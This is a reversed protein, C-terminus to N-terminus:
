DSDSPETPRIVIHNNFTGVNLFGCTNVQFGHAGYSPSFHHCEQSWQDSSRHIWRAGGIEVGLNTKSLRGELNDSFACVKQIEKGILFFVVVVNICHV